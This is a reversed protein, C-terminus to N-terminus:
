STGTAPTSRRATSSMAGSWAGAPSAPPTPRRPPNPVASRAGPSPRGAAPMTRDAVLNASRNLDASVFRTNTSARLTVQGGAVDTWTFKEWTSIATRNAVLPAYAALGSDAAVYRGNSARLAILGGGADVVTFSEWGGATGASPRNAILQVNPLNQDASVYQNNANARLWIVQNLPASAPAAQSAATLGIMVSFLMILSGTVRFFAHKHTFMTKNM